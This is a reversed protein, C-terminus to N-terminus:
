TCEFHSVTMHFLNTKNGTFAATKEFRNCHDVALQKVNEPLKACQNLQSSMPRFAGCNEYFGISIQPYTIQIGDASM